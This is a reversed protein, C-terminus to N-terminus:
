KKLRYFTAPQNANITINTSSFSTSGSVDVWNTDLGISLSNTQTQLTWNQGAPWSLSLINGSVANTLIAPGTALM